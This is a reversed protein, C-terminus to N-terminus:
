RSPAAGDEGEEGGVVLEMQATSERASLEDRIGVAVRHPGAAMPLRVGCGAAQGLAVLLESNPIRVPCAQRMVRSTRGEPGEVAVFLSVEARHEQPGPILVLEGVPIRAVVPVLFGGDEAPEVELAEVTMGLPNHFRGLVLASLTRHAMREEATRDRLSRRHRVQLGREPARLEVRIQREFGPRPDARYGLSYHHASDTLFGELARDLSVNGLGSRGGTEGALLRLGEQDNRQEASAFSAGRSGEAQEASGHTLDGPSPDLTYLTVRGANALEALAQFEGDLDYRGIEASLTALRQEDNMRGLIDFRRDFAEFLAESPNRSLGDSLHLVAKSGPLGAVTAVLHELSRLSSRVELARAEAYAHFQPHLARAEGVIGAAIREEADDAGGQTGDLTNSSFRGDKFPNLGTGRDVDVRRIATLLQDRDRDLRSGSGGRRALRALSRDLEYLNSTFPQFIELGSRSHVALLVSLGPRWGERLHEELHELARHRGAARLQLEDVLVVLHQEEVPAEAEGGAAGAQSGGEGDPRPELRLGDRVAYFNSIEVERGNEWLRFDEATLGSVPEGDRDTVVVEVQVVHVETRESFIRELPDAAEAEPVGPGASEEGRSGAEDQFAPEGQPGPSAVAPLVAPLALVVLLLLYISVSPSGSTGRVSRHM